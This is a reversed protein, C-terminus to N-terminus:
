GKQHMQTLFGDKFRVNKVDSLLKHIRMLNDQSYIEELYFSLYSMDKEVAYVRNRHNMPGLWIPVKSLKAVLKEPDRDLFPEISVSVKWDMLDLYRVLGIRDKIRSTFPEFIERLHDHRTTISFRFEIQEQYPYLVSMMTEIVTREPKMVLLVQNGADLLKHIVHLCPLLNFMDINHTSPFMIQGEYKRKYGPSIDHERLEPNNWSDWDKQKRRDAAERAYCYRCGANCGTQINITKEVWEKTGKTM